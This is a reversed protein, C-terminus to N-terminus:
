QAIVQLRSDFGGARVRGGRGSTREVRRWDRCFERGKFGRANPALRVLLREALDCPVRFVARHGLRPVVQPFLLLAIDRFLLLLVRVIALPKVRQVFDQTGVLLIPLHLPHVGNATNTLKHGVRFLQGAIRLGRNRLKRLQVANIKLGKHSLLRIDIRLHGLKLRLKLLQLALLLHAHLLLLM